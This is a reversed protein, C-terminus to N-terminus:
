LGWQQRLAQNQHQALQLVVQDLNAYTVRDVPEMLAQYASKLHNKEIWSILTLADRDSLPFDLGAPRATRYCNLLLFTLGSSFVFLALRAKENAQPDPPSILLVISLALPILSLMGTGGLIWRRETSSIAPSDQFTPLKIMTRM